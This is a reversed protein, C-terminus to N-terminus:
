CKRDVEACSFNEKEAECKEQQVAGSSLIMCGDWAVMWPRAKEQQKERITNPYGFGTLMASPFLNGAYIRRCQACNYIENGRHKSCAYTSKKM